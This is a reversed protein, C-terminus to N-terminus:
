PVAGEGGKEENWTRREPEAREDAAPVGREEETAPAM